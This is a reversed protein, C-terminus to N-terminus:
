INKKNFIVIIITYNQKYNYIINFLFKHTCTKNM